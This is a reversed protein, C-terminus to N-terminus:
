GLLVKDLYSQGRSIISIKNKLREEIVSILEDEKINTYIPNAKFLPETLKKYITDLFNSDDSAKIKHLDNIADYQNCIKLQTGKKVVEDMRDLNTVALSSVGGNVELAYRLLVFDLWGIRFNRQWDNFANSVDPLLNTLAVDETPFPGNGHRTAYARIVGINEIKGKFLMEELVFIANRKTTTSWTTYPHFGNYEDLLVGQSGEFIVVGNDFKEYLANSPLIKIKEGLELFNNTVLNILEKDIFFKYYEQNNYIGFRQAESFKRAHIRNLKNVLIQKDKLDKAFITENPFHHLDQMTEGIGLGCSGHAQKGRSIERLRNLIKHYVTVVVTKEDVSILSLPNKVGKTSLNDAEIALLRPDFLAYRSIITKAGHFTGAGFQNFVHTVGDPLVVRHAAQAGGNHKVVTHANYHKSLFDVITGKGSDGFGLDTVIIAKHM